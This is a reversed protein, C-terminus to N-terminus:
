SRSFTEVAQICEDYDRIMAILFFHVLNEEYYPHPLETLFAEAEATGRIEKAIRRMDPSKVGLITEKPINPVLKSVFDRYEESGCAALRDYVTM